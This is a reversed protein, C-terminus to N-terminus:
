WHYGFGYVIHIGIEPAAIIPSGFAVGYGAGVGIGVFKGWGNKKREVRPQITAQYNIGISDIRANYGRFLVAVEARTSDTAFTDRYESQTIPVLVFDADKNTTDKTTSNTTEKLVGTVYGDCLSDRAIDPNAPKELYLTDWEIVCLPKTHQAIRLTDRVAITDHMVIPQKDEPVKSGSCGKFIYGIVIGAIMCVAGIGYTRANNM